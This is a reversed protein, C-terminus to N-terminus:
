ISMLCVTVYYGDVFTAQTVRFALLIVSSAGM